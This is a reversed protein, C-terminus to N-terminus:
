YDPDLGDMYSLILTFIHSLSQSCSLVCVLYQHARSPCGVAALNYSEDPIKSFFPM